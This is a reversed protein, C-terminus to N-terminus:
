STVRTTTVTPVAQGGGGTGTPGGSGRSSVFPTSEATPVRFPLPCFTPGVGPSTSAGLSEGRSRFVSRRFLPFGMVPGTKSSEGKAVVNPSIFGSVSTFFCRHNVDSTLPNGTFSQPRFPRVSDLLLSGSLPLSCGSPSRPNSYLNRPGYLGRGGVTRNHINTTGVCGSVELPFGLIVVGGFVWKKIVEGKLLPPLVCRVKIPSRPHTTGLGKCPLFLILTKVVREIPHGGVGLYSNSTPRPYVVFTDGSVSFQTRGASRGRRSLFYSPITFPSDSPSNSNRSHPDIRRGRLVSLTFDKGSLTTRFSVVWVGRDVITPQGSM